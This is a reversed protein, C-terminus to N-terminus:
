QLTQPPPNTSESAKMALWMCMRCDSRTDRYNFEGSSIIMLIGLLVNM